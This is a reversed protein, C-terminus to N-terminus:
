LGCICGVTAQYLRGSGVAGLQLRSTHAPRAVCRLGLTNALFLFFHRFDEVRLPKALEIVTPIPDGPGMGADTGFRGLVVAFTLDPYELVVSHQRKHASSVCVAGHQGPQRMFVMNQLAGGHPGILVQSVGARVWLCVCARPFM